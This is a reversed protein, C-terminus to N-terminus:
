WDGDRIQRSIASVKRAPMARLLEANALQSTLLVVFLDGPFSDFGLVVAPRVKRSSWTRSRFPCCSWTM